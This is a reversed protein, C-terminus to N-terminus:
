SGKKKQSPKPPENDNVILSACKTNTHVVAGYTSCHGLVKGVPGSRGSIPRSATCSELMMTTAGIISAPCGARGKKGWEVPWEEASCHSEGEQGQMWTTPQVLLRPLAPWAVEM